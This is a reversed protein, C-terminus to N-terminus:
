TAIGLAGGNGASTAQDFRETVSSLGTEGAAILTLLRDGAQIGAPLDVVVPQGAPTQSSETAAIAPFAQLAASTAGPSASALLPMAALVLAAALIPTTRSRKM